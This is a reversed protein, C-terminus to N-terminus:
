CVRDVPTVLMRALFKRSSVANSGAYVRARRQSDSRQLSLANALVFGDFEQDYQTAAANAM